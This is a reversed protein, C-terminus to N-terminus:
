RADKPKSVLWGAAPKAKKAPKKNAWKKPKGADVWETFGRFLRALDYTTAQAREGAARRVGREVGIWKRFLAGKEAAQRRSKSGGPPPAVADQVARADMGTWTALDDDSAVVETTGGQRPVRRMLDEVIERQNSTLGLARLYRKFYHPSPTWGEDKLGVFRRSLPVPGRKDAPEIKTSAKPPTPKQMQKTTGLPM